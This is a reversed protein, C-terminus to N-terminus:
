EFAALFSMFAFGIAFFISKIPTLAWQKKETKAVLGSEENISEGLHVHEHEQLIEFLAVYILAGSAFSMSLGVILHFVESTVSTIAMGIGIGSPISCAFTIAFFLMILINNSFKKQLLFGFAISEFFHHAMIAAFLVWVKTDDEEAGFAFGLIVSHLSLSFWTIAETFINAVASFKSIAQQHRMCVHKLQEMTSELTYFLLIGFGALMNAWPFEIYWALKEEDNDGHAVLTTNNNSLHTLADTISEASEPILHMLAAALLIGGSFAILIQFM